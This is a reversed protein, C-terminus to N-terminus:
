KILIATQKKHDLISQLFAYFDSYDELPIDNDLLMFMEHAVITNNERRFDTKYHGYDSKILIGEPIQVENDALDTFNYVIRDSTNIPYNIRVDLHRDKPKEFDPLSIKLPNVVEWDGVKRVPNSLNGVVSIKLNSSDRQYNVTNWSRLNFGKIGLDTNVEQELDSEAKTSLLHRYKEFASGRLDLTIVGQWDNKQDISFEYNRQVLVDEPQLKPTRVLKSMEEDVALALRDQTFTGVYNFPLSNSTNELWITDKQLPVALVVHNFQQSPFNDKVRDKNKGAKIVAYHSPIGATNLMAKMYTTLAKCDGYKNECVYSAPYSKLGGVDIAVNIYRTHDQLYYYLKKIIEKKGEIGEIMREVIWRESMTLVDTGKNLDNLWSGISSWSDASGRVGYSFNRPVVSVMPITEEIPPSFIEGRTKEQSTSEWKYIKRGESLSDKFEVSGSQDILVTYDVPTNVELSSKVTPVNTYMVPTWWSVYLFEEEEITYSYEIQYPYQHWFLDFETVLDDQYFAQYSLVNRTNLDRKKIKRLLNGQSDLIRAYEFSFDQLPNHRIEIHSLWNEKKENVQILVTRETTKRGKKDIAIRTEHNLVQSWTNEISCVLLLILLCFSLIKFKM